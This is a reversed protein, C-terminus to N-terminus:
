VFMQQLLGKKFTQTQNIQTEVQNIKHDIGSLFDAIKQQEEKSPFVITMQRQATIGVYPRTGGDALVKLRKQFQESNFVWYVFYNSLMNNDLVRYYTVQPTLMIYETDLKPVIGTLGVSGKHTLLVDGEISFGKQLKDAQEKRICSAVKLNLRGNVFCNAMVFPIGEDVFDSSVPHINGHNGDLPKDLIKNKILEDINKEEWDPYNSGDPKGSTETQVPKFRLEPAQGAKKPFLKQMVGKKYKELLAKKQRLQQIKEDVASLFAAIKQQEPLTPLNIKIAKIIALNLGGRGGDGTSMRRIEEYRSDINQYLFWPKFKEYNPYIAAISQNTCLEITNIAATGRTKGQGALGILVSEKPILKTSSGKLGKETIKKEVESVIKNNLEGSSMWPIDGNWFESKTTSPTGGASVKAISDIKFMTWNDNFERFRIKPILGIKKDIIEM